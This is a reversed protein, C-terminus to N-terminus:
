KQRIADSPQLVPHEAPLDSYSRWALYRTGKMDETLM